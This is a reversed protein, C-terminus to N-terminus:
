QPRPPPAGKPWLIWMRGDHRMMGASEGAQPGLGWFYDARVAGNIAGGTDQAMMLKRLPSGDIPHATALFVPAGLPVHRPDVAISRGPTLALGLAGKPGQSPDTIREERFFVFSPNSDLVQRMRQPNALLWQRLGQTTAQEKTLWGQDILYKGISRYPHGNQDAYGVRVTSGDTLTVRGSGQIQLFFADLESDVWAIEKGRPAAGRELEARSYYPVVKKGQLRGRLRRGKLDAYLDGLDITLLDEPTAFLPVSYQASASRAGRLVPEFYGTILGTDTQVNCSDTQVIRYPTLEREFFSRTAAAGPSPVSRAAACVAAWRDRSAQPERKSLPGCSSLFAQWAEQSPDAPWGELRSWGVAEYSVVPIVTKDPVCAPQQRQTACGALVALPLAACGIRFANWRM